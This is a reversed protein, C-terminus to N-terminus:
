GGLRCWSARPGCLFAGGLGGGCRDLHSAGGRATGAHLPHFICEVDADIINLPSHHPTSLAFEVYGGFLRPGYKGSFRLHVIQPEARLRRGAPLLALRSDRLGTLAQLIRWRTTIRWKTSRIVSYSSKSRYKWSRARSRARCRKSRICPIRCMGRHSAPVSTTRSESASRLM